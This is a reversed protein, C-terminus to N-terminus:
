TSLETADFVNASSHLWGSRWRGQVWKVGWEQGRLDGQWKRDRHNSFELYRMGTSDYLRTKKQSRSIESVLYIVQLRKRGNQPSGKVRDTKTRQPSINVATILMSPHSPPSESIELKGALKPWAGFHLHKNCSEETLILSRKLNTVLKCLPSSKVSCSLERQPMQTYWLSNTFKHLGSM